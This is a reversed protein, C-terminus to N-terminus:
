TRRKLIGTVVRDIGALDKKIKIDTFNNEMIKAVSDGENIGVEFILMGKPKLNQPSIDAIRRYFMLGDRGGALASHPEFNAVDAPLTLMDADTIYPPNSSIVDFMGFFDKEFVDAVEFTVKQSLNHHVANQCAVSVAGSSIDVGHATIESNAAAAIPICGSGTCLDLLVKKGSALIEEVVMETEPRPILTHKNVQFAMGFFDKKGTIYAIPKHHTREKIYNKFDEAKDDPVEREPYLLIETADVSLAHSLLIRSEARPSDAINKLRDAGYFILDSIKVM